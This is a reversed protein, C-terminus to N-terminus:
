DDRAHRTKRISNSHAAFAQSRMKTGLQDLQPMDTEFVTMSTGIEQINVPTALLRWDLTLPGQV